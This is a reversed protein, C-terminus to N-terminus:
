ATAKSLIWHPRAADTRDATLKYGAAVSNESRKLWQGLRTPDIGNGSRLSAVDLLAAHLLPRRKHENFEAEEARRILEATTFSAPALDLEAAWADFVALRKQRQPDEARATAITSAPDACRMWVLANRVLNSWGDYSPLPPLPSPRGATIYARAITLIAAVYQGRDALVMAVPDVKFTREEPNEMNADLRCVLTRRVLDAVVALNNGNAFITVTNSVRVIASSGLPRLQLTPRESAQCLFDGALEGNCNDLAIIPYGALVAGILRKETEELNPAVAVVACREGTAIVSALDALYSKGTGAAPATAVHLPVAPFVGRLVPTMLMSLAVSRSADDAFPFEALLDTLVALSASADATSPAPKIASMPPPALLVLGTPPDYGVSELISGDPRLTPTNIVGSLPPFPWEGVMAAIQDVVDKPPDIRIPEGKPDTKEWCASQGLARGLAPLTVPAIGPVQILQGNSAKDKVVCPRVLSRDRQYLEVGAAHM